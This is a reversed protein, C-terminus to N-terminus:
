RAHDNSSGNTTIVMPHDCQSRRLWQRSTERRVGALQLVHLDGVLNLLFQDSLRLLLPLLFLFVRHSCCLKWGTVRQLELTIFTRHSVSKWPQFQRFDRASRLGDSAPQLLLLHFLLPLPLFLQFGVKLLLVKLIMSTPPAAAAARKDSRVNAPFRCWFCCSTKPGPTQIRRNTSTVSSFAVYQTKSPLNDPFTSNILERHISSAATIVKSVSM